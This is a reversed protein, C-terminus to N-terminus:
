VSTYMAPRPLQPSTDNGVFRIVDFVGIIGPAFSAVLCASYAGMTLM